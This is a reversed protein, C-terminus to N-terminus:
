ADAPNGRVLCRFANIIAVVETCVFHSEETDAEVTMPMQVPWYLIQWIVYFSWRVKRQAAKPRQEPAQRESKPPRGRGRKPLRLRTSARSAPESPQEPRGRKRGSSGAASRTVHGGSSGPKSAAGGRSSSHQANTQSSTESDSDESDFEESSAGEEDSTWVEGQRM